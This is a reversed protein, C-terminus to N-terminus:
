QEVASRYTRHLDVRYLTLVAVYALKSWRSERALAPGCVGRKTAQEHSQAARVAM